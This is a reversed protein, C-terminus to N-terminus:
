NAASPPPTARLRRRTATDSFLDPVPANPPPVVAVRITENENETSGIGVKGTAAEPDAPLSVVPAPLQQQPVETDPLEGVMREYAELLARRSAAATFHARVREYASDAMRRATKPEDLIRLIKSALDEPDGPTFLLGDKGDRVIEEVIPRRPALVPTRCAMSELIKSPRAAFPREAGDPVHPAVAATVRGLLRPIDEHQVAGLREVHGELSLDAMEREFPITFEPEIPGALTLTVTRQELVRRIARMLLRMGRGAGIRGVYAIRPIKPAPAPEWDFLDVDVGSPIVAIPVMLGRRVLEAQAYETPVLILDSRALCYTEAERLAQELASDAAPPEGEPSLAVEFVLKAGTEQKCECVPQGAWASRFHIIDYDAPELQRRVARRFAEIQESLGGTGVPVRLVRVRMFREVFVQDSSRIAIADAQLRPALAKFVNVLQVGHRDPAPVVSFSVILVRKM